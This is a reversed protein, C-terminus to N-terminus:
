EVAGKVILPAQYLSKQYLQFWFHVTLLQRHRLLRERLPFTHGGQASSRESGHCAHLSKRTCSQEPPTSEM